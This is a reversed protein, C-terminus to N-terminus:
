QMITHIKKRKQQPQEVKSVSVRVNKQTVAARNRQRTTTTAFSFIQRTCLQAFHNFNNCYMFPDTQLSSFVTFLKSHRSQTLNLHSSRSYLIFTIWCNFISNENFSFDFASIVTGGQHYQYAYSFLLPMLKDSNTFEHM